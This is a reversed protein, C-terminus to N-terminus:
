CHHFSTTFRGEKKVVLSLLFLHIYWVTYGGKM